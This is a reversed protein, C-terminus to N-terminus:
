CKTPERLMRSFPVTSAASACATMVSILTLTSVSLECGFFVVCFGM